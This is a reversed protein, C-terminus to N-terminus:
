PRVELGLMAAVREAAEVQNPCDFLYAALSVPDGGRDGHRLGVM